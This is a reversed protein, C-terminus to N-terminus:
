LNRKLIQRRIKKEKENKQHLHYRSMMELDITHLFTIFFFQERKDVLSKRNVQWFDYSMASVGDRRTNDKRYACETMWQYVNKKHWSSFIFLNWKILIWRKRKWELKKNKNNQRSTCQNDYSSCDVLPISFPFFSLLQSHM